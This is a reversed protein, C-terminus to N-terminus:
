PIRVAGSKPREIAADTEATADAKAVDVLLDM